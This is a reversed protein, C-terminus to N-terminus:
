DEVIELVVDIETARGDSPAPISKLRDLLDRVSSDMASIGSTNLIRTSIVNGKGDIKLSIKVKPTRNALESKLPQRWMKYLYSSVIDYYDSSLTNGVPSSTSVHQNAANKLKGIIDGPSILPKKPEAKKGKVTTQSIVIEKPDLYPKKKEIPPEKSEVIPKTETKKEVPKTKVEKTKEKVEVPKTKPEEIKVENLKPEEIKATEVKPEEPVPTAIEPEPVPAEKKQPEKVPEPTKKVAKETTKQEPNAFSVLNVKIIKEKPILSQIYFAIVPMLLFILHGSLVNFFIKRRSQRSILEGESIDRHVQIRACDM